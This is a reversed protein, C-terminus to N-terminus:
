VATHWLWFCGCLASVPEATLFFSLKFARNLVASAGCSIASPKFLQVTFVPTVAKHAMVNGEKFYSKCTVICTFLHSTVNKKFFLSPSMSILPQDDSILQSMQQTNLPDASYPQWCLFGQPKQEPNIVPCQLAAIWSVVAQYRVDLCKRQHSSVIQCGPPTKPHM